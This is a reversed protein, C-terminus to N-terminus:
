VINQINKVVKLIVVWLTVQGPFVNFLTCRIEIDGETIDM